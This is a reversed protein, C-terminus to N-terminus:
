GGAGQMEGVTASLMRAGVGGRTREAEPVAVLRGRVMVLVRDALALVEDLDTSLLAIGTDGRARLRLLEDQVFATAMVDLGRTPNEAVLLDRGVELERAVVVRQQNGGSLPRARAGM